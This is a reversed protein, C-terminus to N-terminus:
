SRNKKYSLKKLFINGARAFFFGFFRTPRAGKKEFVIQRERENKKSFRPRKGLFDKLFFTKEAPIAPAWFRTKKLFSEKRNEKVIKPM